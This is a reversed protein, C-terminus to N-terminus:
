PAYSLNIKLKQIGQSLFEKNGFEKELREHRKKTVTDFFHKETKWSVYAAETLVKRKRSYSLLSVDYDDNKYIENIEKANAIDIEVIASKDRNLNSIAYLNKNDFTFFLPSVSEKFNTTLMIKFEDKETHRYLISTNVGDSTTALRLKGEHDTLWGTINGPNEAIMTLEGTEINLRYADFVEPNRKNLGIIVENPIDELDDIIDTRVKDFDTLCKLNNGDIDVGYLRFNEDGGNDKLFLIRNKNKWFYGAIDRDTEGTIRVAQKNGIEQIFINMRKEYPAQYSYYKGDPSIQYGAKEPNRFFDKLPIIRTEKKTM